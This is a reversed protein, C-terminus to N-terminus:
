NTKRMNSTKPPSLDSEKIRKILSPEHTAKLQPCIYQAVKVLLNGKPVQNTKRMNSTQPPSLDSEKIHKILSPEHTARDDTAEIIPIMAESGYTLRFPTEKQSDRPLTREHIEKIIKDTQPSAVCRLWPMFFSRKYLNGRILKYQPAQIRIKRAEKTDEPLLGSLLYEHIPDMWSKREQMDVKLIEKEEISRKTLVKVLVEKTLHEFTMSVLKSLADAKKNQNRCARDYRLAYAYEKGEPDILMLGSGSGDSNSAGDTYLKWKSNLDPVEKPKEKKGNDEFPIEVLFDIPTEKENRRLFVINHEGLKIVWKAARGTKEPGTLM